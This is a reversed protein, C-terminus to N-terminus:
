LAKLPYFQAYTIGYEVQKLRSQARNFRYKLLASIKKFEDYTYDGAIDKNFDDNKMPSKIEIHYKLKSKGYSTKIDVAKGRLEELLDSDVLSLDRLRSLEAEGCQMMYWAADYYSYVVDLYNQLELGKEKISIPDSGIPLNLDIKSM